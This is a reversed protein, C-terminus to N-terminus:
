TGSTLAFAPKDLGRYLSGMGRWALQMSTVYINGCESKFSRMQATIHSVKTSDKYNM